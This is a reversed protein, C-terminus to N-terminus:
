GGAAPGRWRPPPAAALIPTAELPNGSASSSGGRGGLAALGAGHPDFGLAVHPVVHDVVHVHDLVAGPDRAHPIPDARLGALASAGGGLVAAAGARLQAGSAYVGSNGLPDGPDGLGSRASGPGAGGERGGRGGSSRASLPPTGGAGSTSAASRPRSDGGGSAAGAEEGWGGFLASKVADGSNSAAGFPLLRISPKAAMVNGVNCSTGDTKFANSSAKLM